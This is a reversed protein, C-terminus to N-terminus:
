RRPTARRDPELQRDAQPGVDEGDAPRDETDDGHELGRPHADLRHLAVAAELCSREGYTALVEVSEWSFAMVRVRGRGYTRPSAPTRAGDDRDRREGAARGDVAEGAVVVGTPSRRRRRRRAARRREVRLEGAVARELRVDVDVAHVEDVREVRGLRRRPGVLPVRLAVFYKEKM